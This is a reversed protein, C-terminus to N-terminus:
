PSQYRGDPTIGDVWSLVTEIPLTPRKNREFTKANYKNNQSEQLVKKLRIPMRELATKEGFGHTVMNGSVFNVANWAMSSLQTPSYPSVLEKIEDYVTQTVMCEPRNFYKDVNFYLTNYMWGLKNYQHLEVIDKDSFERKAVEDKCQSLLLEFTVVGEVNPMLAMSTIDHITVATKKWAKWSEDVSVLVKKNVLQYIIQQSVRYDGVLWSFPKNEDHRIADEHQDISCLVASSLLLLEPNSLTKLKKPKGKKGLLPSLLKIRKQVDAIRPLFKEIWEAHDDNSLRALYSRANNIDGEDIYYNILNHIATYRYGSDANIVKEYLPVVLAKQNEPTFYAKFFCLAAYSEDDFPIERSEQVYAFFENTLTHALNENNKENHHVLEGIVWGYFYILKETDPNGYKPMDFPMTKPERIASFYALMHECVSWIDKRTLQKTEIGHTLIEEISTYYEDLQQGEALAGFNTINVIGYGTDAEKEACLLRLSLAPVNLKSLNNIHSNFLSVIFTEDFEVALNKEEDTFNNLYGIDGTSVLKNRTLSCRTALYKKLLSAYVCRTDYSDLLYRYAEISILDALCLNIVGGRELGFHMREIANNVAKATIHILPIDMGGDPNLQRAAEFFQELYVPFINAEEDELWPERDMLLKQIISFVKDNSKTKICELFADSSDCNMVAYFLKISDGDVISDLLKIEKKTLPVVNKGLLFPEIQQDFYGHILVSPLNIDDDVCKLFFELSVSRLHYRLYAHLRQSFEINDHM